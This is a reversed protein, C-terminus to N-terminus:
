KNLLRQWTYWQYKIFISPVYFPIDQVRDEYDSLLWIFMYNIRYQSLHFKPRGFYLPLLFSTTFLSSLFDEFLLYRSLQINSRWINDLCVPPHPLFNWASSDAHGSAFFYSVVVLELCCQPLPLATNSSCSIPLPDSICLIQTVNFQVQHLRYHPSMLPVTFM